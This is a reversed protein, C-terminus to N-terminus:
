RGLAQRINMTEDGHQCVLDRLQAASVGLTHSWYQVNKDDDVDIRRLDKPASLTDAM